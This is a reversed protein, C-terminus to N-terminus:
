SDTEKSPQVELTACRGVAFWFIPAAIQYTIINSGVCQLLAAGIIGLEVYNEKIKKYGNAGSRIMIYLFFTTGFIGMECFLKILGGDAVIFETYGIARHGNAGLGNGLWINTLNNVAAIWSESREGISRPLSEIRYWVKLLAEFRVNALLLLAAMGGLWEMLFFKKPLISFRYFILYNLYLIVLFAVTMASRQNCMFASLLCIFFAGKGRKGRYEVLYYISLLMGAVTLFGEPISSIFSLMRVQMTPADPKSIYSMEYAWNIYFDPAWFFLLIGSLFCFLLALLCKGYFTEKNEKTVSKGVFYFVIPLVSVAFEDFFVEMPIHSNNVLWYISLINYLFYVLVFFDTVSAERKWATPLPLRRKVLLEIAVLLMLITGVVGPHTHKTFMSFFYALMVLIYYYEYLNGIAKKREM